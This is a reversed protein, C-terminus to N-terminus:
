ALLVILGLGIRYWAFPTFGFRDICNILPRFVLLSSLFATFFGVGLFSLHDATLLNRHSLLDYMGAGMLTPVALLFSFETAAKRSMGVCVGSAITAGSRSIGPVLALAQATGVWSAQQVSINEPQQCSPAKGRREIWLLILGGIILSSAVTVSNYLCTKIFDHFLFGAIGAPITALVLAFFFRRDDASTPFRQVPRFLREFYACIVAFASGLQVVVEFIKGPPGQFDLLKEFLILHGTSSIPLFETLGQILGLLASSIHHDMTLVISECKGFICFGRFSNEPNLEECKCFIMKSALLFM